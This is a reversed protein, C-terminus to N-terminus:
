SDGLASSVFERTQQWASRWAKLTSRGTPTVEYYKRPPGESSPEVSSALLGQREMSRLLPYLTGKKVELGEPSIAELERAIEYGYAPKRKAALLALMALSLTGSNLEKQFKKILPDSQDMSGKWAAM